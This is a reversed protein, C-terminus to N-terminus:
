YDWRAHFIGRTWGCVPHPTHVIQKFGIERLMASVCQPNPGWWNTADGNLTDGPYFIMAPQPVDLADCHTEVILTERVLKAIRELALFPNRLHYLVGAFLVIDFQGIREVTLDPVDIKLAEVEPALRNRAFEFADFIRDGYTWAFHDTALVRAAGRRHAEFSNWGDVAGIDLVTKGALSPPYYIDGQAKLTELPIKGRSVLGDGFDISHYWNFRDIEEQLNPM